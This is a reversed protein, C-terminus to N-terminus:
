ILPPFAYVVATPIATTIGSAMMKKYLWDLVSVSMLWSNLFARSEKIKTKVAIKCNVIVM